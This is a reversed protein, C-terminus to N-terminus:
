KSGDLMRAADYITVHCQETLKDLGSTHSGDAVTALKGNASWCSVMRLHQATLAPELWRGPLDGCKPMKGCSFSFLGDESFDTFVDSVAVLL